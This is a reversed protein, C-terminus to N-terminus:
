SVIPNEHNRHNEFLIRLNTLNENTKMQIRYNKNHNALDERQIILHEHSKHNEVPIRIKKKIKM